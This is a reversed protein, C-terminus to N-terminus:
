VIWRDLYHRFVLCIMNTKNQKTTNLRVCISVWLSACILRRMKLWPKNATLHFVTGTVTSLLDFRLLMNCPIKSNRLMKWCRDHHLWWSSVNEVNSSRQAPFEGTEPSNGMCLGTVRLKSTKKSRCRFLCNLLCHYPQHNSVGDRGNHTM